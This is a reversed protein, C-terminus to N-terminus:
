YVECREAVAVVSEKTEWWQVSEKRHVEKWEM